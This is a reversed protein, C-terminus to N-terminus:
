TKRSTRFLAARSVRGLDRVGSKLVYAGMKVVRAADRKRAADQMRRLADARGQCGGCAM